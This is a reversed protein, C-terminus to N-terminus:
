KANAAEEEAKAKARKARVGVLRADSQAKRLAAFASFEKESSTIARPAEAKYLREIPLVKSVAVQKVNATDAAPADGKQPKGAKKPFVILKSKYVKLRETNLQLSEVSKNRRRFDM